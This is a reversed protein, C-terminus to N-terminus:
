PTTAEGPLAPRVVIRTWAGVYVRDDPGVPTRGTIPETPLPAGAPAVFTGNASDLDAVYWQGGQDTLEAQRRSCGVDAGCDVDPQIGRSASRRGILAAGMLPVIRPPGAPPAPEAVAQSTHWDPDIWVEAVWAKAGPVSPASPASVPGPRAPAATPQSVEDAIAAGGDASLATAGAGSPNSADAGLGGTPTGLAASIPAAAGDPADDLADARTWPGNPIENLTGASTRPDNPTESLANASTGPSNPTKDLADAGAGPGDPADGLIDANTGPGNPTEGLADASPAPDDPSALGLATALDQGPLAGTTYDYGCAECFL